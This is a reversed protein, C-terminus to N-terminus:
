EGPFIQPPIIDPPLEQSSMVQPPVAEPPVVPIPSDGTAMALIREYSEPPTVQRGLGANNFSGHDDSGGTM